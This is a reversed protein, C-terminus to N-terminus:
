AQRAGAQGGQADQGENSEQAAQGDRDGARRQCLRVLEGSKVQM